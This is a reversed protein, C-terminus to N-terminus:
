AVAYDHGYYGNAADLRNIARLELAKRHKKAMTLYLKATKRTDAALRLYLAQRRQPNPQAMPFWRASRCISLYERHREIMRGYDAMHRAYDDLMSNFTDDM